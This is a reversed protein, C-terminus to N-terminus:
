KQCDPSFFTSRQQQIIRVIPKGCRPCPRDERRYVALLNQFSGARGRTDQFDSFTTGCHQIALRLTKRISRHLRRIEEASLSLSPKRPDIGAAFLVESAYINGIGVLRDQRLLWPKIQQSSGSLLKKLTRGTFARSLPDIGKPRVSDPSHFIDLRGFRRVDFFNLCGRDLVLRARLHGPQQGSQRGEMILRGTMGLHFGLWLPAKNGSGASLRIVIRKGMRSVELITRSRVKAKEPEELRPDLIELSSIKRDLLFPALQRVVTEVEPLEPM